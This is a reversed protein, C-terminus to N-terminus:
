LPQLHLRQTTTIRTGFAHVLWIRTFMVETDSQTNTGFQYTLLRMELKLSTAVWIKPRCIPDGIKLRLQVPPPPTPPGGEVFKATSEAGGSWSKKRQLRICIKVGLKRFDSRGNRLWMVKQLWLHFLFTLNKENQTCFLHCLSNRIKAQLDTIKDEKQDHIWSSISGFSSRWCHFDYFLLIIYVILFCYFAYSIWLVIFYMILAFKIFRRLHKLTSFAELFSGAGFISFM